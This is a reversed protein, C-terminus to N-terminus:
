QQERNLEGRKIYIYVCSMAYSLSLSFKRKGNRRREKQEYGMGCPRSQVIKRFKEMSLDNISLRSGRNRSDTRQLFFWVCFIVDGVDDDDDDPFAYCKPSFVFIVNTIKLNLSAVTTTSRERM